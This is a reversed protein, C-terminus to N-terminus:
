APLVKDWAVPKRAVDLTGGDAYLAPDRNASQVAAVVYDEAMIRQGGIVTDETSPSERLTAYEPPPDFPFEWERPLPLAPLTM